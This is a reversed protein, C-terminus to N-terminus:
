KLNSNSIELSHRFPEIFFNSFDVSSSLILVEFIQSKVTLSDPRPMHLVRGLRCTNVFDETHFDLNQDYSKM